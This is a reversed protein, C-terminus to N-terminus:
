QKRMMGTRHVVKIHM